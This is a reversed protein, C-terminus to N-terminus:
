EPRIFMGIDHLIASLLLLAIEFPTFKNINEEFNKDIGFALDEMYAAVRIGHSMDHMTYNNYCGSISNITEKIANYVSLVQNSLKSDTKKLQQFSKLDTIEM